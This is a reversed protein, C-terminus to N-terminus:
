LQWMEDTTLNEEMALIMNSLDRPFLSEVFKPLDNKRELVKQRVKEVEDVLYAFRSGRLDDEIFKTPREFLFFTKMINKLMEDEGPKLDSVETSLKEQLFKWVLNIEAKGVTVLLTVMEYFLHLTIQKDNYYSTIGEGYGLRIIYDLINDGDFGIKENIDFQINALIWRVMDLNYNQCAITLINSPFYGFTKAHGIAKRFEQMTWLYQIVELNDGRAANIVMDMVLETTPKEKQFLFQIIDMNGIRAAFNSADFISMSLKNERILNALVTVYGERIVVKDMREGLVNPYMTSIEDMKRWNGYEAASFYERHPDIRASIPPDVSHCKHTDRYCRLEGRPAYGLCRREIGDAQVLCWCRGDPEEVVM